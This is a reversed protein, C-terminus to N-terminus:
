LKVFTRNSVCTSHTKVKKCQDRLFYLTILRKENANNNKKEKWIRLYHFHKKGYVMLMQSSIFVIIDLLIKM